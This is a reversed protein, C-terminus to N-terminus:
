DKVVVAADFTDSVARGRGAVVNLAWPQIRVMAHSWCRGVRSRRLSQAHRVDDSLAKERGVTLGGNRGGVPM